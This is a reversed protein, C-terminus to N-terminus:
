LTESVTPLTAVCTVRMTLTISVTLGVLGTALEVVCADPVGDNFVVPVNLQDVDVSM